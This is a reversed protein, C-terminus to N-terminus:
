GAFQALSADLRQNIASISSALSSHGCLEETIAKVKRTSVGQVYMEALAAVLARESRQYREFLETSFRGERDQPVRLELRGVRTVLNRVYYGSRYGMRGETREGKQAGLAESMEAELIEQVVVGVLPRLYDEKETLLEKIEKLKPTLNKRTTTRKM